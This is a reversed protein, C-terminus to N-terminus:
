GECVGEQLDALPMSEPSINDDDVGNCDNDEGDCVEDSAETAGGCLDWIGSVCVQEGPVCQGVLEPPGCPQTSENTCLCGNDVAGDCDDDIVGDCIEGPSPTRANCNVWSGAECIEIGNECGLDCSRTLEEDTDGDCDDDINDCKTENTDPQRASCVEWGGDVCIQTGYECATNCDREINDAVGDCDNDLGDCIEPGYTNNSYAGYDPDIQIGDICIKKAGECEGLQHTAPDMLSEDIDEDAPGDCDDDFGNCLEATPITGGECPGWEGAVCERSGFVCRGVDTGCDEVEGHVCTCNEDVEGNCNNDLGDCSEEEEEFGEIDLTALEQDQWTGEVCTQPFSMGSCIGTLAMMPADTINNDAVNDCDDDLGNCQESAPGNDDCATWNCAQNCTKQGSSCEGVSSGCSETEGRVCNFGEDKSGDCNDDLGNCTEVGPETSGQCLGWIGYENCIQIGSECIGVDTGCPREDEKVCGCGIDMEGDCDNDLGDCLNETTQYTPGIAALYDAESPEQWGAVGGCIQELGSGACVGLTKGAAPPTLGEDTEDDCDDDIGNCEEADLSMVAGDCGGWSGLSCVQTGYVCRGFDTEPGCPRTDDNTCLCGEDATGDCDDDIGNCRDLGEEVVYGPISRYDPEIWGYTGDEKLACLKQQGACLGVFKEANDPELDEDILNDCDDDIGNCEEADLPMVEDECEGWQGLSCLQTGYACRGFDTDPGCSRTDGDTCACGEDIAGDCNEDILGDCIEEPSSTRANCNIWNGAECIEMGDECGRNCSRTLEEDASGDCDNDKGDCYEQDPRVMGKCMAWKGYECLQTGKKCVGIGDKEAACDRSQGDECECGEDTTGNCNNDKGDCVEEKPGVAGVCEGWKNDVCSITGKSCEGKDSGCPKKQGANCDVPLDPIGQINQETSAETKSPQDVALRIQGSKCGTLILVIGVLTILISRKSIIM